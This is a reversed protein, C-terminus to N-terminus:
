IHKDLFNSLQSQTKAGVEAAVVHGDKFLILHPISRVAFQTPANANEDVNLKFFKVRGAYQNAINELVPALMRCPGCWEAWFDVLVPLESKLVDNEFQEDNTVKVTETM